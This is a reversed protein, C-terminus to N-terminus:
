HRLGPHHTQAFVFHAAFHTRDLTQVLRESEELACEVEEFGEVADLLSMQEVDEPKPFVVGALPLVAHGSVVVVVVVVVM